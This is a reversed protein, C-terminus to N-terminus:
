GGPRVPPGDSDHTIKELLILASEVSLRIENAFPQGQHLPPDLGTRRLISGINAEGTCSIWACHRRDRSGVLIGCQVVTCLVVSRETPVGISFLYFIRVLVIVSWPCRLASSTPAKRPTSVTGEVDVDDATKSCGKGM